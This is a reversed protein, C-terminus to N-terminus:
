TPIPRGFLEKMRLWSGVREFRRDHLYLGNPDFLLRQVAAPFGEDGLFEPLDDIFHTCGNSAIRALKAEKTLEFYVRDRPLGIGGPDHFDQAALWDSAARHLDYQAGLFPHVTKHSVICVDLNAERCGRFFDLVGPFPEAELMRAGYVYGQIETWADERGAARLYNRVDSKNVPTDAPILEREVCVRHFLRDYCVITNDFDVGILM